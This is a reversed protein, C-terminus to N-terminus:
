GSRAYGVFFCGFRTYRCPIPFLLYGKKLMETTMPRMEKEM